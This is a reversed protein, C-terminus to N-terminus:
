NESSIIKNFAKLIKQQQYYKSLKQNLWIINSNNISIKGDQIMKIKKAYKQRQRLQINNNKLQVLPQFQVIIKNSTRLHLNLIKNYIM